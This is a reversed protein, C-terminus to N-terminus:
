GPAASFVARAFTARLGGLNMRVTDVGAMAPDYSNWLTYLTATSLRRKSRDPWETPYAYSFADSAVGAQSFVDAITGVPVPPRVGVVISRIWFAWGTPVVVHVNFTVDTGDPLQVSRPKARPNYGTEGIIPQQLVALAGAHSCATPLGYHLDPTANITYENM